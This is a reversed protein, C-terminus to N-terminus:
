AVDAGVALVLLTALAPLWEGAGHDSLGPLTPKKM